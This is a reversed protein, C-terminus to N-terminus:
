ARGPRRPSACRSRDFGIGAERMAEAIIEDLCEVHARAAIEPVVGGYRRHQEWQARVVNSSSAAAPRRRARAVVAAATEDCSTEIGLVLMERAAESRDNIWRADNAGAARVSAYVAPGRHAAGGLM